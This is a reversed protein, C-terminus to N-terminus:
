QVPEIDLDETEPTTSPNVDGNLIMSKAVELAGLAFLFPTGESIDVHFKGGETLLITIEM